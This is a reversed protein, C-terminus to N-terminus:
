NTPFRYVRAANGGVIKWKEDEPIDKFTREIVERSNPFTGEDHPYDNGWMLCDIGTVDRNNLGVPDDGFTAGGQRRFYDSPKMELKPEIWMHRKQYIEDLTQLVWALWGIGCEVLVFRLGPHRELIGSAVLLCLPKMAAAMDVVEFALDEGAGARKLVKSPEKECPGDTFIHLALPVSVEEIAAWFPEYFPDNYPQIPMSIPISLSRFGMNAARTAESIANDIDLTPVIASVAFRDPYAGFVENYYDNYVRALALQLGPDRSSFTHFTGHPYIVEGSVGDLEQDALRLPIDTGGARHFVRGVEEGDRWYRSMDDETLPNPAEMPRPPQGEVIIFTKGDRVELRPARARYEAPLRDYVELPENLHSDASIVNYQPM